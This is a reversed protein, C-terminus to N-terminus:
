RAAGTSITAEAEIAALIRRALDQELPIRGHLRRSLSVPHIGVRAAVLFVKVQARAIAARLDAASPAQLSISTPHANHM